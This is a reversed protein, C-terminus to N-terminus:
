AVNRFRPDYARLGFPPPYSHLEENGERPTCTMFMRRVNDRPSAAPPSIMKARERIGHRSGRLSDWAAGLRYRWGLRGADAEAPKAGDMLAHSVENFYTARFLQQLGGVTPLWECSHDAFNYLAEGPGLGLTVPGDILVVTGPHCCHRIQSFAYFPDHLHYYVGLFLIVDFTENLSALRYVSMDQRVDISSNLLQKALFIGSGDAWNQSLDDTALVRRAGRKEAHFSWYGDWAGIDLVSKNRFDTADLQRRTFEWVAKHGHDAAFKPKTRLGNGFDFEHYWTIADIRQQVAALDM